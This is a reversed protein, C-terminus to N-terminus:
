QSMISHFCILLCKLNFMIFFIKKTAITESTETSQTEAVTELEADTDPSFVDETVAVMAPM